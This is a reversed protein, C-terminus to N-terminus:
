PATLCRVELIVTQTRTHEDFGREDGESIVTVYLWGPVAPFGAFWADRGGKALAVIKASSSEDMGAVRFELRLECLTGLRGAVKMERALGTAHASIVLAPLNRASDEDHLRPKVGNAACWAAVATRSSSELLRAITEASM